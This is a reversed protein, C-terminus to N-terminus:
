DAWFGRLAEEVTYVSAIEPTMTPKIKKILRESEVQYDWNAENIPNYKGLTRDEESDKHYNSLMCLCMLDICCELTSADGGVFNSLPALRSYLDRDDELKHLYVDRASEHMAILYVMLHTFATEEAKRCGALYPTEGILRAMRSGKLWEKEEVGYNLVAGARGTLKSWQEETM